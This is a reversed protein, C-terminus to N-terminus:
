RQKLFIVIDRADNEGQGEGWSSGLCCVPIEGKPCTNTECVAYLIAYRGDCQKDCPKNVISYRYVCDSGEPDTINSHERPVYDLFGEKVLQDIFEDDGLNENGADWKDQHINCKDKNDTVPPYEGFESYYLHLAQSIQYMEQIRIADRAQKAGKVSNFTISGALIGIISIVILLEILTFGQKM